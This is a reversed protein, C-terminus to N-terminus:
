VCKRFSHSWKEFSCLVCFVCVVHLLTCIALACGKSLTLYVDWHTRSYSYTHYQLSHWADSFEQYSELPTQAPHLHGRCYTLTHSLTLKWWASSIWSHNSAKRLGVSSCKETHLYTHDSDGHAHWGEEHWPHPKCHWRQSCHWALLHTFLSSM